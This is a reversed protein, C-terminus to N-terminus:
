IIAYNAGLTGMRLANCTGFYTQAQMFLKLSVRVGTGGFRGIFSSFASEYGCKSVFVCVTAHVRREM